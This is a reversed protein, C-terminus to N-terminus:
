IDKRRHKRYPSTCDKKLFCYSKLYDFFIKREFNKVLKELLREVRSMGM